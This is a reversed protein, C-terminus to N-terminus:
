IEPLSEKLDVSMTEIADKKKGGSFVKQAKHGFHFTTLKAKSSAPKPISDETTDM